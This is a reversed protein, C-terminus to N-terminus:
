TPHDKCGFETSDKHRPLLARQRVSTIATSACSQQDGFPMYTGDFIFTVTCEHAVLRGIGFDIDVDRGQM